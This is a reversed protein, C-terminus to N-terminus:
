GVMTQFTVAATYRYFQSLCLRNALSYLVQVFKSVSSLGVVTQPVLVLIKYKFCVRMLNVLASARNRNRKSVLVAICHYLFDMNGPM